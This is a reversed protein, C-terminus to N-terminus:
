VVQGAAWGSSWAWQFNYGGLWGTVDLVEGIFYLGPIAKVEMTQSSIAETDVGGLTVEATRYGETGNPKIHWQSFSFAVDQLRQDSFTTLEKELVADEQWTAVVRKPWKQELWTKLRMKPNNRKAALIEAVLDEGPALDIVLEDGPQWFSSIQLMAPGSLGRHTFLMDLTFDQNNCVVRCPVSIGSLAGYREKDHPQLTFPVLGARTPLVHLGFQTALQYGFPSAGMTPISLGGTAIVLSKSKLRTGCALHLLYGTEERKVAQISTNLAITVGADECCALLMNVIDSSKNDCFLQGHSKEHFPIRFKRVLDIFDYATYRKLASKCFHPNASRYHHAEIHYNTFNCRGGGSMLIKKGAKNAHDIVLVQRGRFGAEIACMLGAAGAGIIIVDPNKM